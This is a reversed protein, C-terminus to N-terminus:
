ASARRRGGRAHGAGPANGGGLLACWAVWCADAENDNPFERGWRWAAAARMDRKDAGGDRTAAFKVAGVPVGVCPVDGHSCAEQLVFAVIGGWLQAARYNPGAPSAHRAVDEYAVLALAETEMLEAVWLDLGLWRAGPHPGRKMEHVGSSERRGMGDLVAWGLHTGIDLGLVRQDPLVARVGTDSSSDIV